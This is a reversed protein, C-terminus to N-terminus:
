GSSTGVVVTYSASSVGGDTDSGCVTSWNSDAAIEMTVAHIAVKGSGCADGDYYYRYTSNGPGLPDAPVAHMFPTLLTDIGGGTGIEGNASWNGQPGTDCQNHKECPYEGYKEYYLRLALQIQELDVVRREDRAQKRSEGYNALILTALLAIVAIVILLEILSFGRNVFRRVM